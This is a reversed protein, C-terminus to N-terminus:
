LTGFLLDFLARDPEAAHALRRAPRAPSGDAWWYSRASRTALLERLDPGALRRAAEASPDLIGLQSRAGATSDADGPIADLTALGRDFREASWGDAIARRVLADLDAFWTSSPPLRTGIRAEDVEQLVVLPVRRGFRDGSPAVCGIVGADSWVGGNMVFSWRPAAAYRETWDEPHGGALSELGATIWGEVKRAVPGPLRRGIFDGEAPLKGFWAIPAGRQGTPTPHAPRGGPPGAATDEPSHRPTRM